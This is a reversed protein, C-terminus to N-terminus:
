DLKNMSLQKVIQEDVGSRIKSLRKFDNLIDSNMDNMLWITIIGFSDAVFLKIFLERDEPSLSQALDFHVTQFYTRITYDCIKLLENELFDRNVSKFIHLCAKRYKLAFELAVELAKDMSEITPYEEIIRKSEDRIIETILSPIDTFHYYFSNRNIGCDEVIDKVTIKNLPKENLLKLLSEKIAKQTFNAM